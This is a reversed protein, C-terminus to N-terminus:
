RTVPNSNVIDVDNSRRACLDQDDVDAIVADVFNRIMRERKQHSQCPSDNNSVTRHFSANSVDDSM